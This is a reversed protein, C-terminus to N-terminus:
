AGSKATYPGTVGSAPNLALPPLPYPPEVAVNPGIKPEYPGPPRIQPGVSNKQGNIFGVSMRVLWGVL